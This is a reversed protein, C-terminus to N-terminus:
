KEREREREGSLHVNCPTPRTAYLLFATNLLIHTSNTTAMKEKGRVRWLCGLPIRPYSARIHRPKYVVLRRICYTFIVSRTENRRKQTCNVTLVIVAPEFNQPAWFLFYNKIKGTKKEVQGNTIRFDVSLFSRINEWCNNEMRLWKEIRVTPDISTFTSTM